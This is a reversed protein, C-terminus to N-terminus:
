QCSSRFPGLCHMLTLFPGRAFTASTVMAPPLSSASVENVLVIAFTSPDTDVHQWVIDNPGMATWAQGTGLDTPSTIQYGEAVIIVM